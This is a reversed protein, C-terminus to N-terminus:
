PSTYPFSCEYTPTITPMLKRIFRGPNNRINMCRAGHGVVTEAGRLSTSRIAAPKLRRSVLGDIGVLSVSGPPTTWCAQKEAVM